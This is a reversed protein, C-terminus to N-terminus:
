TDEGAPRGLRRSGWSAIVILVGFVVFPVLKSGYVALGRMATQRVAPDGGSAQLLVFAIASVADCLLVLALGAVGIATRRRWTAPGFAVVLIPVLILNVHWRELTTGRVLGTGDAGRAVVIALADPRTDHTAYGGLGVLTRAVAGVFLTLQERLVWWAVVSVVAATAVALGHRAGVAM